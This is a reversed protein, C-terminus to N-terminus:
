ISAIRIAAPSSISAGVVTPEPISSRIRYIANAGSDSVYLTSGDPSFLLDGDQYGAFSFGTAFETLTGGATLTYVKDQTFDTVFLNSGFLGGPGQIVDDPDFLDSSGANAIETFTADPAYSRVSGDDGGHNKSDALILASTGFGSGSAFTIGASTVPDTGFFLSVGGGPTIEHIKGPDGGVFGGDSLFLNSSFGGSGSGFVLDDLNLTGGTITAFTSVAGSSTIRQVQNAGDDAVYLSTGFVGGNSFAIGNADGLGTAFPSITGDDAIRKIETGVSVYMDTGFDGGPGFAMGDASTNAFVDLTFEVPLVVALLTRQELSEFFLL